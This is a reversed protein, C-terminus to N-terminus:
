GLARLGEGGDFQFAVVEARHHFAADGADGSALMEAAVGLDPIRRDRNRRSKAGQEDFVVRDVALDGDTQERLLADLHSLRLIAADTDLLPRAPASM